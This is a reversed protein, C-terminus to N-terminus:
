SGGSGKPQVNGVNGGAPPASSTAPKAYGGAMFRGVPGFVDLKSSLLTAVVLGWGAAAAAKPAPIALVSLAGFVVFSAVFESPLPPQHNQALDRVTIFGTEVVFAATLPGNM